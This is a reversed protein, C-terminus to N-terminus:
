MSTTHETWRMRRSILEIIIKSSELNHVEENHIKRWKGAVKESDPGFVRRPVRNEFVRL